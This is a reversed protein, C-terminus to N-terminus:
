DQKTIEGTQAATETNFIAATETNFIAAKVNEM